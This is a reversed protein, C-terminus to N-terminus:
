RRKEMQRTLDQVREDLYKLHDTIAGMENHQVAQAKIIDTQSIHVNAINQRIDEFYWVAISSFSGGIIVLAPLFTLFCKRIIQRVWTAFIAQLNHDKLDGWTISTDDNSTM